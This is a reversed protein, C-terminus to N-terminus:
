GNGNTEGVKIDNNKLKNYLKMKDIIGYIIVSIHELIRIDTFDFDSNKKNIAVAIAMVKNEHKIPLFAASKLKM